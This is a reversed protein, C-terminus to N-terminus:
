LNGDQGDGVSGGVAAEAENTDVINILCPNHSDLAPPHSSRLVLFICRSNVRQDTPRNALLSVGDPRLDRCEPRQCPNDPVPAPAPPLNLDQVQVRVQLGSGPERSGLGSVQFLNGWGIM